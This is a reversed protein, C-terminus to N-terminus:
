NRSEFIPFLGKKSKLKIPSEKHLNNYVNLVDKEFMKYFEPDFNVQGLHALVYPLKQKEQIWEECIQHRGRIGLFNFGTVTQNSKLYTIRICRQGNPDEWYISAENKPIQNLIMGYTQYEINFFKASNFWIGPVYPTKELTISKAVCEGQM